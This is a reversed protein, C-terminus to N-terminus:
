RHCFGSYVSNWNAPDNAAVCELVLTGREVSQAAFAAAFVIDILPCKCGYISYWNAPANAAAFVLVLM